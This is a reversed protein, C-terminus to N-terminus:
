LPFGGKEFCEFINIYFSLGEDPNCPIGLKNNKTYCIPLEYIEKDFYISYQAIVVTEEDFQIEKESVNDDKKPFGVIAPLNFFMEPVGEPAEESKRINRCNWTRM